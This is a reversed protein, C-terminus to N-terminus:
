QVADIRPRRRVRHATPRRKRWRDVDERPVIIRVRRWSTLNQPEKLSDLQFGEVDYEPQPPLGDDRPAEDDAARLAVRPRAIQRAARTASTTAACIRAAPRSPALAAVVPLLTALCLATTCRM